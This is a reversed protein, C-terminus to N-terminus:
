GNETEKARQIFKKMRTKGRNLTEAQEVYKDSNGTKGEEATMPHLYGSLSYITTYQFMAVYPIEKKLTERIKNAAKLLLMSNGGIDFFNDHISVTDVQLLEKWIGAIIIETDTAPPTFEAGTGPVPEYANLVKVDPKGNPTLPMKELLVFHSPIMYGPLDKSLYERLEHISLEKKSATYACLFRQAADEGNDKEKKIEKVLVLAADVAEHKLLFSEIEGLEIRYGRIKVQHDIRGLFQINGDSLWRALDGTKYLPSLHFTFPSLYFREATLEPNNLYGRTVGAGGINLEGPVGVPLLRNNKDLIYVSYNAIPKGIPSDSNDEPSCKHYTACVTTETPGYTNYVSSNRLKLLNAAYEKKLVDGGSIFIRINTSHPLKDIENLILPSVSIFTVRHNLLFAALENSDMIVYKPCIALKGGRLLTPYVEEV